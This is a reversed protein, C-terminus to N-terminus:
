KNPYLETWERIVRSWRWNQAKKRAAVSMTDALQGDEALRDLLEAMKTTIYERSRPEILYGSIEDDILLQPGGWDLGIVPLGVAMAEQVVIGNADEISPFVVGRYQGFSNFLERHDTYWDMFRVRDSVRLEFALRQCRELEPGKGVVDLCVRNTTKSLSEIILFTCKHFVLRGYHLFRVNMGDHKIRPRNLLEDSIGCDVSDVLVDSACGCAILSTRTRNGGACLILDAKAIGTAFVGNLKAVPIHFVRRLKASLTERARFIKPYYINGNVPGFVNMHVKSAKRPLVPSNPETQHIIVNSATAGRQKAIAEAMRVAKRSFWVDLLWRLLVSRWLVVALITDQVYYVDRLALRESLEHKNREHTIQVTNAHLKKLERFIQLAKIAEGGMQESVNPAVLILLSDCNIM